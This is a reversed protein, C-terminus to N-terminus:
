AGSPAASAKAAAFCEKAIATCRLAQTWRDGEEKRGGDEAPVTRAYNILAPLLEPAFVLVDGPEATSLFGRMAETWFRRFHAVSAPEQGAGDVVGGGGDATINDGIDIQMCCSDGIRGHMFRTRKFVPAIFALKADFDTAFTFSPVVLGGRSRPSRCRPEIQSRGEHLAPGRPKM